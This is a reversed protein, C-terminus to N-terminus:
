VSLLLISLFRFCRVAEVENTEVYTLKQPLDAICVGLERLASMEEPADYVDATKNEWYTCVLISEIYYLVRFCHM